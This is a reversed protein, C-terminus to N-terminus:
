PVPTIAAGDQFWAIANQAVLDAMATRTSATASGIDLALLDGSVLNLGNGPMSLDILM